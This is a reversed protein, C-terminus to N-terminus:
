KKGECLGYAVVKPYTLKQCKLSIVFKCFQTDHIIVWYDQLAMYLTASHAPFAYEKANVVDLM